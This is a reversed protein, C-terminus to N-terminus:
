RLNCIVISNLVYIPFFKNLDSFAFWSNLLIVFFKVLRAIKVSPLLIGPDGDTPVAHIHGSNFIFIVRLILGFAEIKVASDIARLSASSM